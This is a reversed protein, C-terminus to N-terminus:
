NIVHCIILKEIFNKHPKQQQQKGNLTQVTVATVTSYKM